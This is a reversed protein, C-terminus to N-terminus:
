AVDCEGADFRDFAGVESGVLDGGQSVGDMWSEFGQNEGGSVCSEACSFEGSESDLVEVQEAFAEGDTLCECVGM